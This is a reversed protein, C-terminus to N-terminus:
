INEYPEVILGEVGPHIEMKEDGFDLLVADNLYCNDGEDIVGIRQLKKGIMLAMSDQECYVLIGGKPTQDAFLDFQRVYDDETLFVNAHDWAIGSLLAIHPHYLHFKPRRDIPSALYEDGELVIYRAESTIRVM